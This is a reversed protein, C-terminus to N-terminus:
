NGTAVCQDIMPILTRIDIQPWQNLNSSLLCTQCPGPVLARTIAVDDVYWGEEAVGSDSSFTWRIRVAQGLYAALNASFRTWTLNTGSFCKTGLAIACANGTQTFSAPYPETLDLHSWSQGDDTSILVEGGDFGSEIDYLTWFSLESAEADSLQILPTQMSSCQNNAYTSFFSRDGSHRRTNVLEWGVHRGSSLTMTNDGLEAGSEWLGAALTGIPSGSLVKLNADEIGNTADSARVLYYSTEGFVAGAHDFSLATLNAAIRNAASPIFDPADGRYLHYSVSGGCNSTAGSWSIRLLCNEGPVPEVADVGSFLPPANCPGTTAVSRCASGDSECNGTEELATVQYAYPIQGAVTADLYQNGSVEAIQVWESQPCAGFSRYIGYTPASGSWTLNIANDGAPQVSLGTPAQPAECLIPRLVFLGGSTDSVVVNGSEFFPYVSWAGSTGASNSEPRTDFWAVESLIGNSINDLNLIRLGARYNAQYAFGQHTYLNHDSAAMDSEFTGILVPASLSTVDWIHTRTNHGNNIEDLEDDLLFYRHDETLWGQHTYGVGSYGNRSLQVPNNKDTVDALTLTDENCNFCIERGQFAVDPGQYTVCQADHTYDDQDFCGVFAPSLPDALDMMHLGGSCSTGGSSIGVAFAFGSEEDIVINHTSGFGSYHATETFSVPPSTVTRLQTLDFIQMGHSGAFDAVIYAFNGYTKIDRWSSNSAATPLNGLYIPSEPNSIDVFSTGSSRGMLAYESGTLPDTWGWIDSGSGGGIDSLAMHAMLDVLECPYIEALGDVCPESHRSQGQVPIHLAMFFPIILLPSLRIM